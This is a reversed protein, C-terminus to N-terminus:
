LNKLLMKEIQSNTPIIKYDCLSMFGYDSLSDGAGITLDPSLKDILYSVASKKDIFHPIISLYNSNVHLLYNKDLINLIDMKLNENQKQYIEIDKSKNKVVIHSNDSLTINFLDMNVVKKITELLVNLNISQYKQKIFNQWDKDISKNLVISTGFSTIYSDIRNHKSLFVRSYQEINRATVPIIKLEPYSFFIDIFTEQAKTMYSINKIDEHHTAKIIGRENKRKTQFLTDDLDIFLIAKM